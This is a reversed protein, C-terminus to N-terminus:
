KFEDAVQNLLSQYPRSRANVLRVEDEYFGQGADRVMYAQCQLRYSDTGLAVVEARVRVITQAGYHTDVVGGYAINNMRSGEKDFIMQSGRIGTVRYGDAVFVQSTAKVIEEPSHHAIKVSAFSASGPKFLSCGAAALALCLCGGLAVASLHRSTSM